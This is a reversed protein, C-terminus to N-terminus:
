NRNTLLLENLEAQESQLSRELDRLRMRIFKQQDIDLNEDLQLELLRSQLNSRKRQLTDIRSVLEHLASSPSAHSSVNRTINNENWPLDVVETPLDVESRLARSRNASSDFKNNSKIITKEPWLSNLASDFIGIDFEDDKQLDRIEQVSEESAAQDLYNSARELFKDPTYMYFGNNTESLFEQVLLPHPGVTKGQFVTWWDEKVDGTVFVMPRDLKKAHELMQLWVVYDGYPKCRDIFLASEGGKKADGFGPPTKEDYRAKGSLIIEELREKSYSEGVNDSVIEQLKDKIEDQTIRKDHIRRNEILEETLRQFIVCSEELTGPTVFPHQNINELLKKLGDIRKIADDYFKAQDSIVALRNALYESAVQHPVWLRESLAEFVKLLESRTSDSYRYLSLLVNADLVFICNQWLQEIDQISNAFHGPFLRKM